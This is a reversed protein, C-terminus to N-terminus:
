AKRRFCGVMHDDVMGVAQMHAYIITPGLFKFGRKKLDKAFRVAEPIVTSFDTTKRIMHRIQKGHVFDWSYKSFSGFEKQVELFHKANNIASEIKARNRIIGADKLLTQVNHESFRAVKVPDFHAFEKRYNERKHLVTRWSLGAQASELVLFEFLKEDDRTVVGWETDHYEQMLVDDGAWVCRNVEKIKIM